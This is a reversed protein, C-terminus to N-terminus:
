PLRAIQDLAPEAPLYQPNSGGAILLSRCAAVVPLPVRHLRWVAPSRQHDASIQGLRACFDAAIEPAMAETECSWPIIGGTDNGAYVMPQAHGTGVTGSLAIGIACLLVAIRM